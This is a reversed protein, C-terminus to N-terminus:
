SFRLWIAPINSFTGPAADTQFPDPPTGYTGTGLLCTGSYPYNTADQSHGLVPWQSAPPIATVGVAASTQLVFWVLADPPLVLGMGSVGAFASSTAASFDTTYNIRARPYVINDAQNLYVSIHATSGGVGSTVRVGASELVNGAGTYHPIAVSTGAVTTYTGNLNAGGWMGAIYYRNATPGTTAAGTGTQRFRMPNYSSPVSLPM